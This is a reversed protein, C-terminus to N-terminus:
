RALDQNQILKYTCYLGGIGHCVLKDTLKNAANDFLNQKQQRIWLGQLGRDVQYIKYIYLTILLYRAQHFKLLNNILIILLKILNILLQIITYILFLLLNTPHHNTFLFNNLIQPCLPNQFLNSSTNLHILHLLKKIIMQVKKTIFITSTLNPKIKIISITQKQILPKNLLTILKLSVKSFKNNQNTQTRM